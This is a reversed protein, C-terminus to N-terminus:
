IRLTEVAVSTENACRVMVSYEPSLVYAFEGIGLWLPTSQPGLWAAHNYLFMEPWGLQACILVALAAASTLLDAVSM